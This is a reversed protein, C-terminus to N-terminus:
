GYVKCIELLECSMLLCIICTKFLFRCCVLVGKNVIGAERLFDMLIKGLDLFELVFFMWFGKCCSFFSTKTYRVKTRL